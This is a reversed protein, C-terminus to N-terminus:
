LEGAERAEKLIRYQDRAIERWDFARRRHHAYHKHGGGLGRAIEDNMQAESIAEQLAWEHYHMGEDPDISIRGAEM